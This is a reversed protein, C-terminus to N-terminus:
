HRSSDQALKQHHADGWRWRDTWMVVSMDLHPTGYSLPSWLYFGFLALASLAVVAIGKAAHPCAIEVAAGAAMCGFILPILSHYLYVSRPILFFPFFSSSWGVVFRMAIDWKPRRYSGLVILLSFFATYYVFVNGMCDVEQNGRGWFAVFNGTLLPWNLPRSQYPHFQRIGMNGAHMIVALAIVRIYMGYGSVRTGWLQTDIVEPHVFQAQLSGPLHGTGPGHFPLIAIHIGFFVLHCGLTLGLLSFGRYTLDDFFHSDVHEFVQMLRFTETYATYLMLGWATNKCSCACGLLIGTILMSPTFWSDGPVLTAFFSFSCIFLCSFFHLMGDSLTFRHETLLSTDCAILFGTLFSASHSFTSFRMALYILPSCFSAFVTPTIRLIVYEPTLHVQGYRKEFNIDGSYQSFNAVLFM